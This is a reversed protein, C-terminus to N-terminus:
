YLLVHASTADIFVISRGISRIQSTSDLIDFVHTEINVVITIYRTSIDPGSKLRESLSEYRCQCVPGQSFVYYLITYASSSLRDVMSKTRVLFWKGGSVVKFMRSGIMSGFQSLKM